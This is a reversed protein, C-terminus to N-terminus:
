GYLCKKEYKDFLEDYKNKFKQQVIESSYNELVRRYVGISYKNIMKSDIIKSVCNAFASSTLENVILENNAVVSKSFGQSTAIPILGWAMAETMANSHGERHETTPFLFFHKDKLYEKLKNHNCAPYFSVCSSLGNSTVYKTLSNYYNEDVYDGVISLTTNKYKDHLISMAKLIIDINKTESIRGFYLM